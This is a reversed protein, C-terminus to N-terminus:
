KGAEASLIFVQLYDKSEPMTEIAHWLLNRLWLPISAGVGRTIYRTNDFM